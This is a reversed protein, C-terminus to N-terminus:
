KLYYQKGKITLSYEYITGIKNRIVLERELDMKKCIYAISRSNMDLESALDRAKLTKSSQGLQLIINMEEKSLKKLEQTETISDNINKDIVYQKKVLGTCNPCKYNCFELHPIDEESFVRGCSTCKIITNANIQNLILSTFNFPREIFYKRYESGSPKGWFINYKKALGYNLCYSSM